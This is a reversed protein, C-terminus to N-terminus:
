AAVRKLQEIKGAMEELFLEVERELEGIAKEDRELRKLFVQLDPPLRPDFSVFDCWLRGTCAMQWHMQKVYQDPIRKSLLTNIHTSTLPCKIEVLGHEDVFGDPSAGSLEISPHIVFSAPEVNADTLFEYADRADQEHDIGWQMAANTYQDQPVGTLTECILEAMYNWRSAGYDPKSCQAAYAEAQPKSDLIKTAKTAGERMVAFKGKDRPEVTYIAPTGITAVVDAIRSATVKGLRLQIWTESGQEIM